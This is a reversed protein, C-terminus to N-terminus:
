QTNHTVDGDGERRSTTQCGLSLQAKAAREAYCVELIVDDNCLYYLRHGLSELAGLSPVSVAEGYM